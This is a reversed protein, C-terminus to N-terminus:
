CTLYSCLLWGYHFVHIQPASPSHGGHAPVLHDWKGESRHAGTTVIILTAGSMLGRGREKGSAASGPSHGWTNSWNRLQQTVRALLTIHKPLPQAEGMRCGARCERGQPWWVHTLAGEQFLGCPNEKSFSGLSDTILSPQFSISLIWLTMFGLSSQQKEPDPPAKTSSPQHSPQHPQSCGDPSPSPFM